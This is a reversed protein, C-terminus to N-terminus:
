HRPLWLVAHSRGNALEATGTIPGQEDIGTPTSVAGGLTGLDTMLGREWVFAHHNTGSVFATGVAQGRENM